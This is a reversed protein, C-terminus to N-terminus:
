VFHLILLFLNSVTIFSYVVIGFVYHDEISSLVITGSLVLIALNILPAYTATSPVFIDVIVLVLIISMLAVRGLPSLLKGTKM